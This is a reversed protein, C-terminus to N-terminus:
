EFWSNDCEWDQKKTQGDYSRARNRIILTAGVNVGDAYVDGNLRFYKDRSANRLELVEASDVLDEVMTKSVEAMKKTCDTGGRKEPTDIGNLRIGINKGFVDPIGDIDVFITDGDYVYNVRSIRITGEDHASATFSYYELGVIFIIIWLLAVSLEKIFKKTHPKMM